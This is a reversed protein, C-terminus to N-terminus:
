YFNNIDETHTHTLDSETEVYFNQDSLQRLGENIYDTTNMVVVAGGKDAPKIVIHRNSSLSRIAM